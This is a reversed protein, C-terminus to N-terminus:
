IVLHPHRVLPSYAKTQTIRYIKRKRGHTIIHNTVEDEKKTRQRRVKEELHGYYDYNDNLL